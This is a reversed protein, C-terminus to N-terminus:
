RAENKSSARAAPSKKGWRTLNLAIFKATTDLGRSPTDRGEMEDSAIFTLYSSMQAATIAEVNRAALTAAVGAPKSHTPKRQAFAAPLSVSLAVSLVLSYLRPIRRM